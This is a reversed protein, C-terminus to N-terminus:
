RSPQLPRLGIARAAVVFPNYGQGAMDAANIIDRALFSGPIGLMWSRALRYEALSKEQGSGQMLTILDSGATVAPGGRFGLAGPLLYWSTLNLGLAMSAAKTATQSMAFRSIAAARQKVTGRSALRALQSREWVSWSGFQGIVRGANTGWGAPHQALGFVGVTEFSSARGLFKAADEFKGQQVMKDFAKIVPVDYTDILLANYARDKAAAGAGYEGTALKLLESAAKTYTELYAAAHAWQYINHQLGWKIGQDGVAQIARRVPASRASVTGALREEPTAVNIASLGPIVGERRLAQTVGEGAVTESIIGAKQLMEPTHRTIISMMRATRVAGFRSYFNAVFNQLDRIGQIPRFGITSSSVLSLFTNVFERRTDVSSKIGLKQTFKDFMRQTLRTSEHPIGRLENLYNEKIMRSIYEGEPLNKTARDVYRIAADWTPKTIKGGYGSNIYRVLVNVPDRDYESMEGTRLLDSVFTPINDQNAIIIDNNYNRYHAFYGGLRQEEPIDFKPALDDYHARIKNALEVAHPSLNNAKIYEAPSLDGHMVANALRTIGYISLEGPRNHRLVAGIVRAAEEHVPDVAMAAALKRQAAGLEPNGAMERELNILARRYQFAKAIDVHNDIFWQAGAIERKTFARSKFLGGAQIMDDASMTELLSTVHDLEAKSLGRAFNAIGSAREMDGRMRSYKVLFQRYNPDWVKGVFDTGLQADLAVMFQRMGTVRAGATTTNFWHSLSRTVGDKIYSYPTKHPGNAPPTPSMVKSGTGPPVHGNGDFNPGDARGSEAVFKRVGELSRFTGVEVGTEADRLTMTSGGNRDIYFGSSTALDVVDGANEAMYKQNERLLRNYTAREEPSLSQELLERGFEENLFRRLPAEVNPHFGRRTLYQDVLKGLPVEPVVGERIKGVEDFITNVTKKFNKYIDKRAKWQDYELPSTINDADRQLLDWPVEHVTGEADMIMHGTLEGKEWIPQVYTYDKGLFHVGQEPMFGGIAFNTKALTNDVEGRIPADPTVRTVKAGELAVAIPVPDHYYQDEGIYGDFGRSQLEARVQPDYVFDIPSAIGIEDPLGPSRMGAHVAEYMDFAEVDDKLRNIEALLGKNAGPNSEYQARLENIRAQTDAIYKEAGSSLDSSFRSEPAMGKVARVAELVDHDSAPSKIEVDYAHVDGQGPRKVAFDNPISTDVGFFLPRQDDPTSGEGTFRHLRYVNPEGPSKDPLHMYDYRGDPRRFFAGRENVPAVLAEKPLDSELIGSVIVPDGTLDGFRILSQALDGQTSMAFMAAAAQDPTTHESIHLQKLRFLDRAQNIVAEDVTAPGSGFGGRIAEFGLGLPVAMLAYSVALGASEQPTKGEAIGLTAGGAGAEILGKALRQRFGSLNRLKAIQNLEAIGADALTERGATQFATRWTSYANGAEAGVVVAAYNGVVSRIYANREEPLLFNEPSVADYILAAPQVIFPDLLAKGFGGAINVFNKLAQTPNGKLAEGITPTFLQEGMRFIGGLDVGGAAQDTSFVGRGTAFLRLNELNDLVGRFGTHRPTLTNQENSVREIDTLTKRIASTRTLFDARGEGPRQRIGGASIEEETLPANAQGSVDRVVPMEFSGALAEKGDLPTQHGISDLFAAQEERTAGTRARESAQVTDIFRDAGTKAPDGFAAKLLTDFNAPPAPESKKLRQIDPNQAIAQNYFPRDEYAAIADALDYTNIQGIPTDPTIGLRGAVTAIYKRTDNEFEPAYSKFFDTLTSTSDLGTRTRGSKKADIDDLLAMFGEEPSDFQQWDGTSPNRLNGPNLNRAAPTTLKGATSDPETPFAADMLSGLPGSM